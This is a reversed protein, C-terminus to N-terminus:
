VAKLKLEPRRGKAVRLGVRATAKTLAVAGRPGQIGIGGCSEYCTRAVLCFDGERKTILFDISRM